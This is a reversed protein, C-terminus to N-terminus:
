CGRFSNPPLANKFEVIRATDVVNLQLLLWKSARGSLGQWSEETSSPPHDADNTHREAFPRNEAAQDAPSSCQHREADHVSPENWAGESRHEPRLDAVNFFAHTEMLLEDEATTGVGDDYKRFLALNTLAGLSKTWGDRRSLTESSDETAAAAAVTSRLHVQQELNRSLEIAVLACSCNPHKAAKSVQICGILCSDFVLVPGLPWGVLLVCKTGLLLILVVAGAQHRGAEECDAGQKRGSALAAALDAASSAPHRDLMHASYPLGQLEKLRMLVLQVLSDEPSTPRLIHYRGCLLRPLPVWSGRYVSALLGAAAAAASTEQYSAHKLPALRLRSFFVVASKDSCESRMQSFLQELLRQQRNVFSVQRPHPLDALEQQWGRAALAGLDMLGAIPSLVLSAFAIALGEAVGHLGKEQAAIIPGWILDHAAVHLEEGVRQMGRHLGDVITLPPNGAAQPWELSRHGMSPHREVYAGRLSLRISALATQSMSSGLGLFLSLGDAIGAAITAAVIRGAFPISLAPMRQPLCESNSPTFRLQGSPPTISSVVEECIEGILQIRQQWAGVNCLAETACLLSVGCRMGERQFHRRLFYALMPMPLQLVQSSFPRLRVSCDAINCAHLLAAFAVSRGCASKGVVSREVPKHVGQPFHESSCSCSASEEPSSGAMDRSEESCTTWLDDCHLNIHLHVASFFMQSISFPRVNGQDATYVAARSLKSPRSDCHFVALNAKEFRNWSNEERISTHTYCPNGCTSCKCRPAELLTPQPFVVGDTQLRNDAAPSGVNFLSKHKSRGHHFAPHMRPSHTFTSLARLVSDPPLQCARVVSAVCEVLSRVHLNLQMPCVAVLAKDVEQHVYVMFPLMGPYGRMAQVNGLLTFEIMRKTAQQPSESDPPGENMMTVATSTGSKKLQLGGTRVPGSILDPRTPGLIMPYFAEPSFDFIHAEQLSAELGFRMHSFYGGEGLAGDVVSVIGLLSAELMSADFVVQHCSRAEVCRFPRYNKAQHHSQPFPQHGIFTFCLRPLHLSVQLIKDCAKSRVLKASAMKRTKSLCHFGEGDKDQGNDEQAAYQSTRHDVQRQDSEQNRIISIDKEWETGALDCSPEAKRSRKSPMQAVSVILTSGRTRVSIYYWRRPRQLMVRLCKKSELDVEIWALDEDVLRIYLKEQLADVDVTGKRLTAEGSAGVAAPGSQRMATRKAGAALSARRRPCTMSHALPEGSIRAKDLASHWQWVGEMGWSSHRPGHGRASLPWRLRAAEAAAHAAHWVVCLYNVTVGEIAGLIKRLRPPPWLFDSVSDEDAEQGERDTVSPPQAESGSLPPRSRLTSSVPVGFLDKLWRFGQVSGEDSGISELTGEAQHSASNTVSNTQGKEEHSSTHRRAGITKSVKRKLAGEQRMVDLEPSVATDQAIHLLTAAFDGAECAPCLPLARRLWVPRAQLPPVVNPPPGSSSTDSSSLAVLGDLLSPVVCDAVATAANGSDVTCFCPPASSTVVISTERLHNEVHVPAMQAPSLHIYSVGSDHASEGVTTTSLIAAFLNGMCDYLPISQSESRAAAAEAADSLAGAVPDPLGTSGKGLMYDGRSPEMVTFESDSTRVGTMDTNASPSTGVCLADTWLFYPLQVRAINELPESDTPSGSEESSSNFAKSVSCAVALYEDSTNELGEIHHRQQHKRPDLLSKHYQTSHQKGGAGGSDVSVSFRETGENSVSPSVTVALSSEGGGAPSGQSSAIGIRCPTGGPESPKRTADQLEDPHRKTKLTKKLGFSDKHELIKGGTRGGKLPSLIRLARREGTVRRWGRSTTDSTSLKGGDESSISERSTSIWSPTEVTSARKFNSSPLNHDEFGRQCTDGLVKHENRRQHLKKGRGHRGCPGLHRRYSHKKLVGHHLLVDGLRLGEFSPHPLELPDFIGSSSQSPTRGVCSPTSAIRINVAYAAEVDAFHFVVACNHPLRFIPTAGDIMRRVRPENYEDKCKSGLRCSDCIMPDSAPLGRKHSAFALDYLLALIPKTRLGPSVQRLELDLKTTNVFVFRPLVQLGVSPASLSSCLSDWAEKPPTASLVKVLTRPGKSAQECLNGTLPITVNTKAPSADPSIFLESFTVFRTKKPVPLESTDQEVRRLERIIPSRGQCPRSSTADAQEGSLLISAAHCPPFPLITLMLFHSDPKKIWTQQLLLDRNGIRLDVPRRLGTMQLGAPLFRTTTDAGGALKQVWPPLLHWLSPCLVRELNLEVWGGAVLRLLKSRNFNYDGETLPPTRADGIDHLVNGRSCGEGFDRFGCCPLLVSGEPANDGTVVGEEQLCQCCRGGHRHFADILQKRQTHLLGFVDSLAEILEIGNVVLSSLVVKKSVFSQPLKSTTQIEPITQVPSQFASCLASCHDAAESDCRPRASEGRKWLGLKHEDALDTGSQHADSGSEGGIESQFGTLQSLCRGSPCCSEGNCTRGKLKKRLGASICMPADWCRQVFAVPSSLVITLAAASARIIPPLAPDVPSFLCCVRVESTRGFFDHVQIVTEESMLDRQFPQEEQPLPRSDPWFRATLGETSEATRQPKSMDSGWEGERDECGTWLTHWTSWPGSGLQLAGVLGDCGHASCCLREREPPIFLLGWGGTPMCQNTMLHGARNVDRSLNGSTCDCGKTAHGATSSSQKTENCRTSQRDKWLPFDVVKISIPFPLHNCIRLPAKLTWTQIAIADHAGLDQCPLHMEESDVSVEIVQEKSAETEINAEPTKQQVAWSSTNFCAILYLSPPVTLLENTQNGTSLGPQLTLASCYIGARGFLHSVVTSACLQQDQLKSAGIFKSCITCICSSSRAADSHSSSLCRQRPMTLALLESCHLRKAQVSLSWCSGELLRHGSGVTPSVTANHGSTSEHVRSDRQQLADLLVRAAIGHLTNFAPCWFSYSNADATYGCAPQAGSQHHPMGSFWFADGLGRFPHEFSFGQPPEETFGCCISGAQNLGKEPREAPAHELSRTLTTKSDAFKPQVGRCKITCKVDLPSLNRVVLPSHLTVLDNNQPLGDATIAARVSMVFNQYVGTRPQVPEGANLERGPILVALEILSTEPLGHPNIVAVDGQAEAREISALFEEAAANDHTKHVQALKPIWQPHAVLVLVASPETAPPVHRSAVLCEKFGVTQNPRLLRWPSRESPSECHRLLLCMGSANLLFFQLDQLRVARRPPRANQDLFFDPSSPLDEQLCLCSHPSYSREEVGNLQLLSSTARLRLRRKKAGRMVWCSLLPGARRSGSARRRKRCRLLVQALKSSSTAHTTDNARRASVSNLRRHGSHEELSATAVVCSSLAANSVIAANDPDLMRVAPVLWQSMAHKWFVQLGKNSDALGARWDVAAQQLVLRLLKLHWSACVAKIGYESSALPQAERQGRSAAASGKGALQSLPLLDLVDRVAMTLNLERSQASLKLSIPFPDVLPEWAFLESIDEADVYGGDRNQVDNIESCSRPNVTGRFAKEPACARKSTLNSGRRLSSSHPKNRQAGEAAGVCFDLQIQAGGCALFDPVTSSDKRNLSRRLSAENLLFVQIREHLSEAPSRTQCDDSMYAHAGRLSEALLIGGESSAESLSFINAGAVRIDSLSLKLLPVVHNPFHRHQAEKLCSDQTDSRTGFGEELRAGALPLTTQDSYPENSLVIDFLPLSLRLHLLPVQSLSWVWPQCLAAFLCSQPLGRLVGSQFRTPSVRVTLGHYPPSLPHLAASAQGVSPSPGQSGDLLEHFDWSATWPLSVREKNYHLARQLETTDDLSGQTLKLVLPLLFLSLTQDDPGRGRENGITDRLIGVTSREAGAYPTKGWKQHRLSSTGECSKSARHGLVCETLFMLPPTLFNYDLAASAGAVICQSGDQLPSSDPMVFRGSRKAPSRMQEQATASRGVGRVESESGGGVGANPRHDWRTVRLSYSPIVCSIRDSCCALHWPGPALDSVETLGAAGLSERIPMHSFFGESGVRFHLNQSHRSAEFCAEFVFAAPSAVLQLRLAEISVHMFAASTVIEVSPYILVGRSPDQLGVLGLHSLVSLVVQVGAADMNLSGLADNLEGCGHEGTANGLKTPGHPSVPHNSNSLAAARQAASRGRQRKPKKLLRKGKSALFKAGAAAEAEQILRMRFERAIWSALVQLQQVAAISPHLFLAADYTAADKTHLDATRVPPSPGAVTANTREATQAHVSPQNADSHSPAPQGRSNASATGTLGAFLPEAGRIWKFMPAGTAAPKDQSCKAVDGRSWASASARRPSAASLDEGDTGIPVSDGSVFSGAPHHAHSTRFQPNQTEPSLGLGLAQRRDSPRQSFITTRQGSNGEHVRNGARGGSASMRSSLAPLEESAADVSLPPSSAQCSQLGRPSSIRGSTRERPALVPSALFFHLVSVLRPQLLVAPNGILLCAATPLLSASATVTDDLRKAVNELLSAARDQPKSPVNDPSTKDLLFSEELARAMAQLREVAGHGMVCQSMSPFLVLPFRCFCIEPSSYAAENVFGEKHVVQSRQETRERLSSSVMLRYMSVLPGIHWICLSTARLTFLEESSHAACLSLTIGGLFVRRMVVNHLRELGWNLSLSNRLAPITKSYTEGGERLGQLADGSSSKELLAGSSSVATAVGSPQKGRLLDTFTALFSGGADGTNLQKPAETRRDEGLGSEAEREVAASDARTRASTDSHKGSGSNPEPSNLDYYSRPSLPLQPSAYVDMRSNAHFAAVLQPTIRLHFHSCRLDLCSSFSAVTARHGFTGKVGAKTSAAPTAARFAATGACPLPAGGRGGSLFRSHSSMNSDFPTGLNAVGLSEEFSPKALLLRWFEATLSAPDSVPIWEHQAAFHEGERSPSLCAMPWLGQEPLTRIQHKSEVVASASILFIQLKDYTIRFLCAPSWVACLATRGLRMQIDQAVDRLDFSAPPLRAGASLETSVTLEGCSVVVPPPLGAETNAFMLTPLVFRVHLLLLPRLKPLVKDAATHLKFRTSQRGETERAAGHSDLAVDLPRSEATKQGGFRQILPLYHKQQQKLAIRFDALAIRCDSLFHSFLILEPLRVVFTSEGMSISLSSCTDVSYGEQYLSEEVARTCAAAAHFCCDFWSSESVSDGLLASGTSRFSGNGVTMPAAKMFAGAPWTQKDPRLRSHAKGSHPSETLLIPLGPGGGIISISCLRLRTSGSATLSFCFKEFNITCLCIDTYCQLVKVQLGDFEIEWARGQQSYPLSVVHDCKNKKEQSTSQSSVLGDGRRRRAVAASIAEDSSISIRVRVLSALSPSLDQLSQPSQLFLRFFRTQRELLRSPTTTKGSSKSQPHVLAQLLVRRRSRSLVHTNEAVLSRLCFTMCDEQPFLLSPAGNFSAGVLTLVLAGCGFQRVLQEADASDAERKNLSKKRGRKHSFHRVTPGFPQESAFADVSYDEPRTAPGRVEGLHPITYESADVGQNPAPSVLALVLREVSAKISYGLLKSGLGQASGTSSGKSLLSKALSGDRILEAKLLAAPRMTAAESRHRALQAATTTCINSRRFRNEEAGGRSSSLQSTPSSVPTAASLVQRGLWDQGFAKRGPKGHTFKGTLLSGLVDDNFGCPNVSPSAPTLSLRQNLSPAAKLSRPTVDQVSSSQLCNCECDSPHECCAQLPVEAEFKDPVGFSWIWGYSNLKHPPFSAHKKGQINAFSGCSDPAASSCLIQLNCGTSSDVMGCLRSSMWNHRRELLRLFKPWVVALPQSDLPHRYIWLSLTRVCRRFRCLCCGGFHSQERKEDFDASDCHSHQRVSPSTPRRWECWLMYRMRKPGDGYKETLESKVAGELSESPSSKSGVSETCWLCANYAAMNGLEAECGLFEYWGGSCLNGWHDVNLHRMVPRGDMGVAALASGNLSSRARSLRTLVGAMRGPHLQARSRPPGCQDMLVFSAGKQQLATQCLTGCSLVGDGRAFLSHSPRSVLQGIAQHCSVIILPTSEEGVVDRSTPPLRLNGWKKLKRFAAAKHRFLADESVTEWSPASDLQGPEVEETGDSDVSSTSSPRNSDESSEAASSLTQRSCLKRLHPESTRRVHPQQLFLLCDRLQAAAAVHFDRLKVDFKGPDTASMPTSFFEFSGCSSWLCPQRSHPPQLVLSLPDVECSCKEKQCVCCRTCSMLLRTAMNESPEDRGRHRASKPSQSGPSEAAEQLEHSHREATCAVAAPIVIALNSVKLCLQSGEPTRKLLHLERLLALRQGFTHRYTSPVCPCFGRFEGIRWFVGSRLHSAGTKVSRSAYSGLWHLLAAAKSHITEVPGGVQQGSRGVLLENVNGSLSTAPESCTRAPKEPYAAAQTSSSAQQEASLAEAAAAKCIHFPPSPFVLQSPLLNCRISPEFLPTLPYVSVRALSSNVLDFSRVNAQHYLRIDSWVCIFMHILGPSPMFVPAHLTVSVCQPSCLCELFASTSSPPSKCTEASAQHHSGGAQHQFGKGCITPSRFVNGGIGRYFPASDGRHDTQTRRVARTATSESSQQARQLTDGRVADFARPKPQKSNASSQSGDDDSYTHEQSSAPSKSSEDAQQNGCRWSSVPENDKYYLPRELKQRWSESAVHAPSQSSLRELCSSVSADGDQISFLAGNYPIGKKSSSSPQSADGPEDGGGFVIMSQLKLGTLIAEVGAEGLPVETRLREARINGRSSSRRSVPGRLLRLRLSSHKFLRDERSVLQQHWGGAHRGASSLQLEPSSARGRHKQQSLGFNVRGRCYKWEVCEAALEEERSPLECHIKWSRALMWRERRGASRNDTFRHYLHFGLATFSLSCKMNQAGLAAPMRWMGPFSNIGGKGPVADLGRANQSPASSSEGDPRSADHSPTGTAQNKKMTQEFHTRHQEWAKQVSPKDPLGSPLRPRENGPPHDAMGGCPPILSRKGCAVDASRFHPKKLFARLSDALPNAFTPFPLSGLSTFAPLKVPKRPSGPGRSADVGNLHDDAKCSNHAPLCLHQHLLSLDAAPLTLDMAAQRRWLQLLETSVHALPGNEFAKLREHIREVNASERTYFLRCCTDVYIAHFRLLMLQPAAFPSFCKSRNNSMNMWTISRVAFVWRRFALRAVRCSRPIRLLSASISLSWQDIKDVHPDSTASDEDLLLRRLPSLASPMEIRLKKFTRWSEAHWFISSADTLMERNLKFMVAGLACEFSHIQEETAIDAVREQTLALENFTLKAEFVLLPLLWPRKTTDFNLRHRTQVDSPSVHEVRGTAGVTQNVCFKTRLTLPAPPSPRLLLGARTGTLSPDGGQRVFVAAAAATEAAATTAPGEVDDGEYFFNRENSQWYIAVSIFVGKHIDLSGTRENRRKKPELEAQETSYEAHRRRPDLTIDPPSDPKTDQQLTTLAAKAASLAAATVTSNDLLLYPSVLGWSFPSAAPVLIARPHHEYRIHINSLQIKVKSLFMKQLNNRIYAQMGASGSTGKDWDTSSNVGLTVENTTNNREKERLLHATLDDLRRRRDRLFSSKASPACWEDQAQPVLLVLVSDLSLVIPLESFLPPLSVVISGITGHAVTFPFGLDSLMKRKLKLNTYLMEGSGAVYADDGELQGGADQNSPRNEGWCGGLHATTEGSSEHSAGKVSDGQQVGRQSPSPRLGENGSSTRVHDRDFSEVFPSLFSELSADLFRRVQWQFM